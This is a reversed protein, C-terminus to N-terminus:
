AIVTPTDKESQIDVGIVDGPVSDEVGVIAEQSLDLNSQTVCLLRM